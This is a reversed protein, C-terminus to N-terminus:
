KLSRSRPCVVERFIAFAAPRLPPGKCVPSNSQTLRDFRSIASGVKKHPFGARRKRRGNSVLSHVLNRLPVDIICHERGDLLFPDSRAAASFLSLSKLENESIERKNSRTNGANPLVCPTRRPLHFSFRLGIRPLHLLLM